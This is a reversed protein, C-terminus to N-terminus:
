DLLHSADILRLGADRKANFAMAAIIGVGLGLEVYAKLVDTDMASVVIDPTLGARAFARDINGRGTFGEHYTIIPWESLAELTLHGAKDLPHGKPVVVGHQWGYFPFSILSPVDRLA